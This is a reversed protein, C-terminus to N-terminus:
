KGMSKKLDQDIWSYTLWNPQDYYGVSIEGDYNKLWPWWFTTQSVYPVPISYAQALMYKMLERMQVMGAAMGDKVITTRVDILGQDVRPDFMRCTNANASPAGTLTPSTHWASVSANGGDTIQAGWKGQNLYNLRAVSDMVNFQLDIGVKLWMDKIIAWFDVYQNTMVATTKFGNPFGAEKLLAKAKDPSYTYLDKVAQPCDPDDLGVFIKEYGPVKPWPWSMIQGIGGYLSDNLSKMDTALMMAQRVRIDNFPPTDCPPDIAEPSNVPKMAEGSLASKLVPVVKKMAQADVLEYGAMQDFRATRLAAQRTSLDPVILFQVVDIYPLQDGKGPGIPNKQWYNPNKKLTMSSAPVYDTFMYPGTGVVANRNTWVATSLEAPSIFSVDSFRFIATVLVDLPVDVTVEWPGTKTIVAKRLDVNTKFLYATSETIARKLYTVVDDATLERGNVQKSGTSTPDLGFRMGQRIKYVITGTNKSFDSTWKVSEAVVGQKHEWVDYYGGWDTLNQGYGGAPGKTWDGHWM